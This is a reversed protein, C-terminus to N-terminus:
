KGNKRREVNLENELESIRMIHRSALDQYFQRYKRESMEQTLADHAKLLAEHAKALDAKLAANEAELESTRQYLPFPVVSASM